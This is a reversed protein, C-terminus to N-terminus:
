KAPTISLDRYEVPGHDGQLYIPGPAGEDSDLAGGTIGPITQDCIITKGNLVVSVRRGVLTIDYTQWEGAGKSANENPVLFGYVAGMDVYRPEVEMSDEVQVEYRGRLYIGSNSGKPCNVELHLKFDTYKAVTMLNVGSKPNRLVGGEAVMWQNSVNQAMPATTTWGTLDKGNFLAVREGWVPAAARRLTPARRGTLRHKEGAPTVLTGELADGALTADVVLDSTEREWQPPIAFHVAGDKFDVRSIPRASGGGGVFRGVLTRTGSLSVELWSPYTSKPGQVTLDWRGIIAPRAPAQPQPAASATAAAVLVLSVSLFASLARHRM